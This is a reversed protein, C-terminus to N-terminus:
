VTVKLIGEAPLYFQQHCFASVEFTCYICYVIHLCHVPPSTIFQITVKSPLHSHHLHFITM